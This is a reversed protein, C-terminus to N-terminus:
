CLNLAELTTRCKVVSQLLLLKVAYTVTIRVATSYMMKINERVNM